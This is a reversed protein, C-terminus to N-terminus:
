LGVYTLRYRTGKELHYDNTFAERPLTRGLDRVHYAITIIVLGDQDVMRDSHRYPLGQYAAPHGFWFCWGIVGGICPIHYAITFESQSASRRGIVIM